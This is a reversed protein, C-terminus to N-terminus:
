LFNRFLETRATTAAAAGKKAEMQKLRGMLATNLAMAAETAVAVMEGVSDIELSGGRAKKLLSVMAIQASAKGNADATANTMKSEPAVPPQVGVYLTSTACMEEMLDADLVCQDGIKNVGIVLPAGAMDMRWTSIVEPLDIHVKGEDAPRVVVNCIETDALAAKVALSIADMANGDFQLVVVDVYLCWLQTPALMLKAMDPMASPATNAFAGALSKAWEEAQDNGGRGAFRPSANASIDVFFHVRQIDGTETSPELPQLDAKVAVLVDTAGLQLRASGNSGLLVGTELAMPRYDTPSRGDNRVGEQVGDIIFNKEHNSVLVDM